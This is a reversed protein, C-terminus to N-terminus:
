LYRLSCHTHVADRPSGRNHGWHLAVCSPNMVYKIPDHTNWIQIIPYSARHQELNWSGTSAPRPPWCTSPEAIHVVQISIGAGLDSRIQSPGVRLSHEEDKLPAYFNDILYMLINVFLQYLKESHLHQYQKKKEVWVTDTPIIKGSNNGTSLM